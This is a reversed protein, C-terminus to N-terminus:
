NGIRQGLIMFRDRGTEELVTAEVARIAPLGGQGGESQVSAQDGALTDRTGNEM